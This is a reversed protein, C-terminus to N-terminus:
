FLTKFFSFQHCLCTCCAPYPSTVDQHKGSVSTTFAVSGWEQGRWQGAPCHVSGEALGQTRRSQSDLVWPEGAEGQGGLERSCECCAGLRLCFFFICVYILCMYRPYHLTGRKIYGWITLDWWTKRRLTLWVCGQGVKKKATRFPNLYALMPDRNDKHQEWFDIGSQTALISKVCQAAAQRM